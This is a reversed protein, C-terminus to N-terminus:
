LIAWPVWFAAKCFPKAGTSPDNNRCTINQFFGAFHSQDCVLHPLRPLSYHIELPPASHLCRSLFLEWFSGLWCKFKLKVNFIQCASVDGRLNVKVESAVTWRTVTCSFVSRSQMSPSAMAKWIASRCASWQALARRRPWGWPASCRDRARMAQVADAAVAAAAAVAVAAAQKRPPAAAVAVAPAAAVAVAAAAAVAVAPKRPPPAVAVAVAPAVAVAAAQKRPPAVAVAVAPAVAAAAVAAAVLPGQLALEMIVLDESSAPRLGRPRARWGMPCALVSTRSCPTSLADTEPWCEALSGLRSWARRNPSAALSEKKRPESTPFTALCLVRWALHCTLLKQCWIIDIFVLPMWQVTASMWIRRKLGQVVRTLDWSQPVMWPGLLKCKQDKKQGLVSVLIKGGRARSPFQFAWLSWWAYLHPTIITTGMPIAMVVVTISSGRWERRAIGPLPM